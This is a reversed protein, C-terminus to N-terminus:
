KLEFEKKLLEVIFKASDKDFQLYQSAQGPMERNKTGCTDIQLYKEGADEFICYTGSIKSHVRNREKDKRKFESLDIRAM